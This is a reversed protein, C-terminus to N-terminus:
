KLGVSKLLRSMYPQTLGLAKSANTQHGGHASLAKALICRKAELVAEHYGLGEFVDELGLQCGESGLLSAAGQQGVSRVEEPLDELFIADGQALVVAREMVNSVERV